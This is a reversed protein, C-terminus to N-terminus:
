VVADNTYTAPAVAGSEITLKSVAATTVGYKAGGTANNGGLSITIVTAADTSGSQVCTAGGIDSKGGVATFGVAKRTCTGGRTAGITVASGSNFGKYSGVGVGGKVVAPYNWGLYLPSVKDGGVAYNTAMTGDDTYAHLIFTQGGCGAGTATDNAVSNIGSITISTLQFDGATGTANVFTSGPVVTVDGDCATTASIGQGFEVTAGTGLNITAALTSGLGLVGALLGIGLVVKLKKKTPRASPEHSGGLNLIEM